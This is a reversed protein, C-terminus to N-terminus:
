EIIPQFEIIEHAINNDIAMQLDMVWNGNIDQVPNFYRIGDISLTGSVQAATESAIKAVEM